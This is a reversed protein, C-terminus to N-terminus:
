CQLTAAPLEGGNLALLELYGRLSVLPTRLDHSVNAILESRLYVNEAELDEKLREVQALADSLRQRAERHERVERGPDM